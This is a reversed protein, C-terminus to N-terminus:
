FLLDRLVENQLSLLLEDATKRQDNLVLMM